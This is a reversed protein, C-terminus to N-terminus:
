KALIGQKPILPIEGLASERISNGPFTFKKDFMRSNSFYSIRFENNLALVEDQIFEIKAFNKSPLREIKHRMVSTERKKGYGKSVILVMELDIDSDNILYINWEEGQFDENFERVAAVYVDKVQPIEIDKKM